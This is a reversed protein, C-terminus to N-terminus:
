NNEETPEIGYYKDRYYQDMSEMAWNPITRPFLWTINYADCYEYWNLPQSHGPPCRYEDPIWNGGDHWILDLGLDYYSDDVIDKNCEEDM